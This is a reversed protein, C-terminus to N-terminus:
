IFNINIFISFYPPLFVAVIVAAKKKHKIVINDISLTIISNNYSNKKNLAINRLLNWNM